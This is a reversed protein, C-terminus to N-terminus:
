PRSLVITTQAEWQTLLRNAGPRREFSGQSWAFIVVRGDSCGVILTGPTLDNWVARAANPVDFTQVPRSTSICFDLVLVRDSAVVAVVSPAYTSWAVDFLPGNALQESNLPNTVVSNRICFEEDSGASCFLGPAIPCVAIAAVPGTHGTFYQRDRAIANEFPLSVRVIQGSELGVFADATDPVVVMASISGGSDAIKVRQCQDLVKTRSNRGKLPWVCILGSVSASALALVKQQDSLWDVAVIEDVHAEGLQSHAWKEENRVITVEGTHHGIAVIAPYNPHYKVSTACSDLPIEHRTGAGITSLFHLRSSHRCFGQHRAATLAVAVTAGTCNVSLGTVSFLADTEYTASTTVVVDTSRKELYQYANTPRLERLAIPEVKRLFALLATEDVTPPKYV